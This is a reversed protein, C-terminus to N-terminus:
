KKIKHLFNDGKFSLKNINKTMFRVEQLIDKKFVGYNSNLLQNVKKMVFWLLFAEEIFLMVPIISLDPYINLAICTMIVGASQTMLFTISFSVHNNTASLITSTISWLCSTFLVALMGYFFVADFPMAYRTWILYVPKGFFVLFVVCFLSLAFTIIFSRSYLKSITFLNKKGYAVSIEPEISYSLLNMFSRLFNVITRTVTFTILVVAGLLANVVFIMGQNSVAHGLPILMFAFSPKALSKILQWDFSRITFNTKFWRQVYWHKYIISIIVPIVYILIILAINIKLVIGVFLILVEMLSVSNEIMSSMHTHSTARYIGHYVGNYMRIFIQVLLLIFVISTESESFISVQLIEKFGITLAVMMAVCVCALGVFTIYLFTNILLKLCVAYDKQQYKIVFENTSATNLGMNAISFFSSFATILIWDAYKTVGWFSIFLPVMAIQGFFRIGLGISNATYNKAVSKYISM